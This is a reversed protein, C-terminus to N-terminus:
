FILVLIFKAQESGPCTKKNTFFGLLFNIWIPGKSPAPENFEAAKKKYDDLTKQPRIWPCILYKM